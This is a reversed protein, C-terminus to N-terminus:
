FGEANGLSIAIGYFVSDALDDDQDQVGIRFGCVQRVLHNAARGKYMTIKDYAPKTIKVLGRNVYGSVSIARESKGMSTLKSEIPFAAMGRRRAQQLLIMGSAKDEIFAGLFGKRAGCEKALEEGRQFVSPLWAELLSGEIQAIDWDAVFIRRPKPIDEIAFFATATGDHTKGTKTASDIVAFIADCRAPHEAPAGNVLFLDTPFFQTGERGRPRQQFQTDYAYTGLEIKNAEITARPIRDPCLLEGDQQRPDTFWPTKVPLSRVYEMPLVLKTYPLQLRDIVGCLDDPHLRHMIVIIADHAPDNLRSTASERFIREARERDADSEAMETSHPDDIILRNGRGATLSAFPMASRVGKATNEFDTENDRVLVVNPWLTQYWESAILDRTKRSDRRAYKEMYSTTLYRMGPTGGPGWEWAHFMVSAFLSNHTPVFERGALYVSGEVQICKVLRKGVPDVSIVYRNRSRGNQNGRVGAQKRALNFVITNATPIFAVRYHIGCDKGNFTVRRSTIGPKLGLSSALQHVARAIQENKNSFSCIGRKDCTGDTDMLGRLLQWRQEASSELYDDPIHKNGLLGLMRLKSQLGEILIHYFDQRRTGDPPIIRAVRGLKSFHPADQAGAYIMGTTSGGDGLWVGLVYPDIMLRKPPLQVPKCVVVRDPRRESDGHKYGSSRLEATTVVMLKRGRAYRPAVSMVDREVVWQHDASAIIEARDDFRVAYADVIRDETCALVRKPCGDPGFVFDGPQLDGHRKWGWTTFIPTDHDLAKATGPPQNIQLRTIERRHIAELHDCLADHHWSPKYPTEPELVHWAERVFGVLTKCRERIEDAHRITEARQREQRRRDLEQDLKSLSLAPLLSLDIPSHVNM